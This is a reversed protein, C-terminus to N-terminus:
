KANETLRLIAERLPKATTYWNLKITAQMYTYLEVTFEIYYDEEFTKPVRLM